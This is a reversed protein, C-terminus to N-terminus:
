RTALVYLSQYDDFRPPFEPLAKLLEAESVRDVQTFGAQTLAWQLLEFDFLNRHELNQHFLDNLFHQSPMHGLRWQPLRKQRDAVMDANKHHVYSYVAKEIDPTSIWFKGDTQLCRHCQKLLPILEDDLSLHEVVHQCVILNFQANAFPLQGYAIDLNLDSDVLDVNLWGDLRRAGSGLHLRTHHTTYRRPSAVRCVFRKWEYALQRM